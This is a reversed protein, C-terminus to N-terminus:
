LQAALGAPETVPERCTFARCVFATARGGRMEMPGVFPMRAALAMQQPGPALPVFSAFPLYRRAVERHLAITDDRDPPGLVVIQTREAHWGTLGTLMM